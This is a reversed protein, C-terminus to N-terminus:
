FIQPLTLRKFDEYSSFNPLSSLSGGKAIFKSSKPDGWKQGEYVTQRKSVSFVHKNVIELRKPGNPFIM